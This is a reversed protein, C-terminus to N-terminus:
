RIGELLKDVRCTFCEDAGDVGVHDPGNAYEGELWERAEQVTKTITTGDDKRFVVYPEKGGQRLEVNDFVETAPFM